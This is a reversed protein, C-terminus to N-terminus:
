GSRWRAASINKKKCIKNKEQPFPNTQKFKTEPINAQCSTHTHTHRNEFGVTPTHIACFLTSQRFGIQQFVESRPFCVKRIAFILGSNGFSNSPSNTTFFLLCEMHSLMFPPLSLILSLLLSICATVTPFLFYFSCICEIWRSKRKNESSPLCSPFFLRFFSLSFFSM